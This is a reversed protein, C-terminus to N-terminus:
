GDPVHTVSANKWAVCKGDKPIEVIDSQSWRSFPIKRYVTNYFFANKKCCVDGPTKQKTTHKM